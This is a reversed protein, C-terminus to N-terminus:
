RRPGRRVLRVDAPQHDGPAVRDGHEALQGAAAREHVGLVHAALGVARPLVDDGAVALDVPRRDGPPRSRAPAVRITTSSSLGDSCGTSSTASESAASRSASGHGVSPTPSIPQPLTLACYRGFPGRSSASRKTAQASTSGPRPRARPRRARGRAGARRSSSSAGRRRRRRGTGSAAPSARRRRAAPSRRRCARRCRSAAPWSRRAVRALHEVGGGRGAHEDAARRVREEAGADLRDLRRDVGARDARRREGLHPHEGARRLRPVRRGREQVGLEGARQEVDARVPHRGGDLEDPRDARTVASADRPRAVLPRM